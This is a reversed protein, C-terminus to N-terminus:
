EVNDYRYAVKGKGPATIKGGEENLYSVTGDKAIFKADYKAEGVVFAGKVIPTWAVTVDGAAEVAEVIADSTYNVDPNRLAFPDNWVDGRKTEGKTTGATYKVM